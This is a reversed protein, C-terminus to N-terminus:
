HYIASPSPIFYRQSHTLPSREQEGARATHATDAACHLEEAAAECPVKVLMLKKILTKQQPCFSQVQRARHARSDHQNLTQQKQRFGSPVPLFIKHKTTYFLRTYVATEKFVQWQQQLLLIARGTNVTLPASTAPSAGPTWSHQWGCIWQEHCPHHLVLSAVLESNEGSDAQLHPQLLCCHSHRSCLQCAKRESPHTGWLPAHPFSM